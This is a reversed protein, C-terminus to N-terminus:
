TRFFYRSFSLSSGLFFVLIAIIILWIGPFKGGAGRVRKLIENVQPPPGGGTRPKKQQQLKEWDWAMYPGWIDNSISISATFIYALPM